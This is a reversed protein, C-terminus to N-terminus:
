GEDVDFHCGANSLPALESSSDFFEDNSKPESLRTLMGLEFMGGILSDFKMQISYQTLTGINFMVRDDLHQVRDSTEENMFQHVWYAAKQVTLGSVSMNREIGPYWDHPIQVTSSM